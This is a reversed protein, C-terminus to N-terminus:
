RKSVKKGDVIHGNLYRMVKNVSEPDRFTM